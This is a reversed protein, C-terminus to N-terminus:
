EKGDQDLAAQRQAEVESDVTTQYVKGKSPELAGIVAAPQGSGIVFLASTNATLDATVDKVLGADLNQRLSRGLFGGAIAGLALGALPFFVIALMLGLIGGVIAGPRERLM